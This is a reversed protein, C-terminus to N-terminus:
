AKVAEQIGGVVAPGDAPAGAAFPEEGLGSEQVRDDLCEAEGNVLDVFALEVVVSLGAPVRARLQATQRASSGTRPRLNWDHGSASRAAPDAAPVIPLSRVRM